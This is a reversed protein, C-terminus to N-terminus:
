GGAGQPAAALRQPATQELWKRVRKADATRTYRGSSDMLVMVVPQQHLWTQMVLCRGAESIYGTKSVSITWEPSRVLSNTNGFRLMRGHVPVYREHATSFERILPYSASAAVMKALDRPSSVNAPNLGTSDHFRTNWLGLLRAKVNMADVFAAEGGPYHRALSSAARNESSMLALQLMEERSLTTGLALRSGTGKLQDIDADNIEIPESLSLGADLVVMATMLKTISAIPLVETANRELLVEGTRQNIVYFANSALVPMGSGDLAVPTDPEDALVAALGALAAAAVAPKRLSVRMTPAKGRANASARTAAKASRAAKTDSAAAKAVVGKKPAPKVAAKRVPATAAAKKAAPKSVKSTAAKGSAKPAAIAMGSQLAFMAAIAAILPRVKM